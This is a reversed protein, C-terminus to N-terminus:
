SDGHGSAAAGGPEGASALIIANLTCRSQAEVATFFPMVNDRLEKLQDRETVISPEEAM